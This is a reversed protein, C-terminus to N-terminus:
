EGEDEFLKLARDLADGLGTEEKFKQIEDTIRKRKAGFRERAGRGLYKEIAARCLALTPDRASARMVANAECKRVGYRAIYETVIRNGMLSMDKGTGSVLNDIWTLGQEEIYDFNLGFREVKLRDPPWGTGGEVERFNSLIFDSIAIGFPDFDGFYLIVPRCGLSEAWKFREAAQARELIDYWGGANVIPIHYEACVPRFMEVLDIKEVMAQVYYKEGDWWNPTYYDEARDTAELFSRLYQLPTRTEPTEVGSWARGPDGAVLDVPLYGKKRCENIAKQVRGFQGKTILRFGEIFYCWGRSTMRQSAQKNLELITEAFRALSIRRWEGRGRPLELPM